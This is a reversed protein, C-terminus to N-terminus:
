DRLIEEILGDLTRELLRLHQPSSLRHDGEKVLTLCAHSEIKDLLRLAHQWPVDPDAMGQLIHVPCSLRLQPGTLLLHRRGDEILNRTIPYPEASYQSPRSYEGQQLLEVRAADSLGAWLLTETFDTAPAILLLGAVRQPKLLTLLLSIWGGMSSGVLIQPGETLRELAAGADDLWRTVTGNRFDGSSRGHGFYDFRLFARGSKEAWADLAKAKTGTMESKFGGLWLIGPPAGSRHLYALNAGSGRELFGAEL